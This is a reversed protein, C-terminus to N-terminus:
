YKRWRNLSDRFVSRWDTVGNSTGSAGGSSKTYSYGSFSESVFPSLAAAGYSDKWSKVSDALALVARPIALTWVSGTFAEDTLKDDDRGTRHLGDNFVSGVIRYYQGPKLYDSANIFVGDQIIYDGPIIEIKFWNHCTELIEQLTLLDVDGSANNVNGGDPM